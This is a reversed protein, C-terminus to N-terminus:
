DVVRIAVTHSESTLTAKSPTIAHKSRNINRDLIVLRDTDTCLSCSAKL